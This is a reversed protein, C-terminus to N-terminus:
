VEEDDPERVCEGVHNGCYDFLMTEDPIEHSMEMDEILRQLIHRVELEEFYPDPNGDPDHFAANDTKITIHVKAHQFGGFKPPRVFVGNSM